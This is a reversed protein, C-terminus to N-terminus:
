YGKNRKRKEFRKLYVMINVFKMTKVFFFIIKVDDKVIKKLVTSLGQIKKM